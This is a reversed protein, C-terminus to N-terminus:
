PTGFSFDCPGGCVGEPTPKFTPAPKSANTAVVVSGGVLAGVVAVAGAWVYWRQYWLAPKSKDTRIGGGPLDPDAYDSEPLPTLAVPEPADAAPRDTAAEPPAPDIKPDGIPEVVLPALTDTKELPVDLKRLKGVEIWIKKSFVSRGDQRVEVKHTGPALPRPPAPLAGADEGDVYLHAGTAGSPIVIQLRSEKQAAPEETLDLGWQQAFTGGAHFMLVALLARKM